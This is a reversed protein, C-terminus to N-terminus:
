APLSAKTECSLIGLVGTFSVVVTEPVNNHHHVFSGTMAGYVDIISPVM